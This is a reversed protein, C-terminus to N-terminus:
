QTSYTYPLPLREDEKGHSFCHIVTKVCSSRQWESGCVEMYGLTYSIVLQLLASLM